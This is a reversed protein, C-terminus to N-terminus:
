GNQTHHIKKLVKLGSSPAIQKKKLMKGHPSLYSAIQMGVRRCPFFTIVPTKPSRRQPHTRRGTRRVQRQGIEHRRGHRKELHCRGRRVSDQRKKVEKRVIALAESDELSSGAGGKEIAANMLSTKLMRLVGLKAAERAMMAAKIDQDIRAQFTM